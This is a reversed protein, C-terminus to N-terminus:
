DETMELSERLLLLVELAADRIYRMSRTSFVTECNSRQQTNHIQQPWERAVGTYLPGNGLLSTTYSSIERDNGLLPNVHWFICFL